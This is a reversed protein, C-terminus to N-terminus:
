GNNRHGKLIALLVEEMLDFFTRANIPMSSGTTHHLFRLAAPNWQWSWLGNDEAPSAPNKNQEAIRM